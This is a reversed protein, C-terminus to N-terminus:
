FLQYKNNIMTLKTTTVEVTMLTLAVIDGMVNITKARRQPSYISM